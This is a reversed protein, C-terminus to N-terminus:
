KQEQSELMQITIVDLPIVDEKKFGLKEILSFSQKEQMERVSEIKTPPLAIEIFSSFGEIQFVAARLLGYSFRWETIARTFVTKYGMKELDEIMSYSSQVETGLTDEEQLMYPDAVLTEKETKKETRVLFYAYVNEAYKKAHIVDTFEGGSAFRAKNKKLEYVTKEADEIPISLRVEPLKWKLEHKPKKTQQMFDFFGM